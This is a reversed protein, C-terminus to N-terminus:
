ASPACQARRSEIRRRLWEQVESEVWGVARVGINVRPPFRREAEMQYIMSRGLGTMACVQPLRLIRANTTPASRTVPAGDNTSVTGAM